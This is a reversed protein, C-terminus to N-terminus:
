PKDALLVLRQSQFTFEEGKLSGFVRINGFGAQAVVRALEHPTYIKIYFERMQEPQGVEFLIMRDHNGGKLFDFKREELLRRRGDESQQWGRESYNKVIWYLSLTDLLIKAGPKLANYLSQLAVLDEDLGFYGIGSTFLNVAYDAQIQAPTQRFDARVLTLKVREEAAAKAAMELHLQTYDLLTVEFGRKALPVSHRGWGGCWDLIHSGPRPQLLGLVGEVEGETKSFLPRWNYAQVYFGSGFFEDVWTRDSM